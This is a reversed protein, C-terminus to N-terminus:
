IMSRLNLYGDTYLKAVESGLLEEGELSHSLFKCLINIWFLLSCTRYIVSKRHVPLHELNSGQVPIKTVSSPIFSQLSGESYAM